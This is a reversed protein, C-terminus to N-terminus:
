NFYNDRRLQQYLKELDDVSIDFKDALLWVVVHKINSSSRSSLPDHYINDYLRLCKALSSCFSPEYNTIEKIRKELAVKNM